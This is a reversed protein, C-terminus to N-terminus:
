ADLADKEHIVKEYEKAMRKKAEQLAPAFGEFVPVLYKATDMTDLAEAHQRAEILTVITRLFEPAIEEHKNAALIIQCWRDVPFRPPSVSELTQAVKKAEAGLDFRREKLEEFLSNRAEDTAWFCEGESEVGYIKTLEPAEAFNSKLASEHTWVPVMALWALSTSSYPAYLARRKERVQKEINKLMAKREEFTTTLRSNTAGTAVTNKIPISQYSKLLQM